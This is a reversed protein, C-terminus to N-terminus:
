ESEEVLMVDPVIDTFEKPADVVNIETGEM